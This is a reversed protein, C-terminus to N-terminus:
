DRRRLADAAFALEKLKQEVALRGGSKGVKERLQQEASQLFKQWQNVLSEEQRTTARRKGAEVLRTRLGAEDRLRKVQAIVEEPSTAVLYDEGATGEAAYATDRGGIFPVGALWANYLKTAPKQPQKGRGFGRVAVIADVDRYDHWKEAGRIGFSAGTSERLKTSWHAERLGTALNAPNGFFCVNELKDGRMADRPVLGPQTWHPMFVSFPLRQAHWLNQVIQLDAGPHPLGDAVIGAVFAGRPSRYDPALWGNLTIVVGEEPIRDVLEAEAGAQSLRLWTQYIWAQATATKGEAELTVPAGESWSQQRAPEPRHHAPLHFFVPM